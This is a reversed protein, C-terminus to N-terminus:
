FMVRRPKDMREVMSKPLRIVVMAYVPKLLMVTNTLTLCGDHNLLHVRWDPICREIPITLEDLVGASLKADSLPLGLYTQPFSEMSCGLIAALSSAHVVDVHIPVFTSKSYNIVLSTAAAFAILIHKLCHVQPEETRLLILTDDVYRFM